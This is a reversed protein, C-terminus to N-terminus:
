RRGSNAQATASFYAALQEIQADTLESPRFAPMAGAGRRVFIRLVPASLDGRLELQGPLAGDYKAALAATGPLMAAGDAGPGTGHCPACQHDFVQRGPLDARVIDRVVGASPGRDEQAMAVGGLALSAALLGLTTRGIM